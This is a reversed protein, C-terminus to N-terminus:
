AVAVPEPAAVAPKADSTAPAPPIAGAPGSGDKAAGPAPKTPPPPPPKMHPPPTHKLKLLIHRMRSLDTPKGPKPGQIVVISPKRDQDKKGRKKEINPIENPILEAIAKWYQKDANTHFKEQDALFLKEKERNNTKNTEINIKRRRYFDIKYEDAEDIIQNLLEKEEREKEELRIANQRRWERLMFGEDPQMESPPPLVPGDSVFVDDLHDNGYHATGNSDSVPSFDPFEAQQHGPFGYIPAPPSQNEPLNPSPFDDENFSQYVPPPEEHEIQLDKSDETFNSFSDFRQSPLRPDYGLYGDDDFPRSANTRPDEGDTSFTDFGAM